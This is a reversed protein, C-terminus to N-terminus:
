FKVWREVPWLKSGVYTHVKRLQRFKWDVLRNWYKFCFRFRLKNEYEKRERREQDWKSQNAIRDKNDELRFEVLTIDQLKGKVLHVRFEVWYDHNERNFWDYVNVYGTHKVPVLDTHTIRRWPSFMGDEREDEPIDEYEYQEVLLSGKKILYKAMANDLDKTQWVRNKWVVDSLEGLDKPLPLEGKIVVEDFM